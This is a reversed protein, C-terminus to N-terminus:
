LGRVGDLITDRWDVGLLRCGKFSSRALSGRGFKPNEFLCDVFESDYICARVLSTDVFRCGFFRVGSGRVRSLNAGTFDCLTFTERITSDSLNSGVFSCAEFIADITSQYKCGDFRCRLVRLAGGLQGTSGMESFAFDVDVAGLKYIAGVIHVGRYDLHGNPTRGYPGEPQSLLSRRLSFSLLNAWRKVLELIEKRDEM